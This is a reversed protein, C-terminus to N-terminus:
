KDFLPFLWSCDFNCEELSRSSSGDQYKLHVDQQPRGIEFVDVPLVHNLDLQSQNRWESIVVQLVEYAVNM